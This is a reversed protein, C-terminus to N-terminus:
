RIPVKFPLKRVRRSDISKHDEYLNTMVDHSIEVLEICGPKSGIVINPTGFLSGYAGDPQCTYFPSRLRRYEDEESTDDWIKNSMHQAAEIVFGASTLERSIYDLDKPTNEESIVIKGNPKLVRMCEYIGMRVANVIAPRSKFQGYISRALVYDFSEDKFPMADMSGTANAFDRSESALVFSGEFTTPLELGVYHVSPDDFITGERFAPKSGYGIELVEISM